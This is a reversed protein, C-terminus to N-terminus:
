DDWDSRGGSEAAQALQVPPEHDAAEKILPEPWLSVAELYVDLSPGSLTEERLLSNALDQLVARNLELVHKAVEEAEHVLRRTEADVLELTAAAVNGMNALDRGIFVQGEKEGVAVPGVAQSMGYVAVMSHAIKTAQELDEEVGTSLTGFVYSEAAAGGMVTILQKTLDLQSLMSQDNTAYITAGGRGRGRAVVSLKQTATAFEISEAVIAHGSEHIAIRWLEETSLVHSRRQPGMLVRDIAEELEAQEVMAKDARVALLSAENIVNALDAGSFGPTQHAISGLDADPSVPSRSAHLGLIETRGHVDPLDVVVQRDFRGPRLLANDLIDPRNTAAMVVVGSEAGFGDMEVLMQNLTQEREDHGQGMGAGRQRGVADIEDIFIIAPAAERAQRFLDRVRAAGVGVLSEVFESGSISFFNAQAEGAVARALLTKGTGPPGVLLVGKPARAGLEAYRAPNELYDCFERLEILAEPAGAVDKFTFRGSGAKQKRGSWKSFAAIMGGSERALLTFMAFLTALILIPLLFQVIARLTPKGAQSDVTTPIRYRRLEDLLQSTYADAHPYSAWVQQGSSTTLELREDQDRLTAQQVAGRTAILTTADSFRIESGPSGPSLISLGVFFLVLLTAAMAGIAALLANGALWGLVANFRDRLRQSASRGRMSNTTRAM